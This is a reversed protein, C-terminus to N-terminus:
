NGLSNRLLARQPFDTSILYMVKAIEWSMEASSIDRSTGAM